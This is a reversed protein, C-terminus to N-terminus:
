DKLLRRAKSTSTNRYLRIIRPITKLGKVSLRPARGERSFHISVGEPLYIGDKPVYVTLGEIKYKEYRSLDSPEGVFVAPIFIM